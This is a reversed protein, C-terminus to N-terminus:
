EYLVFRGLATAVRKALARGEEHAVAPMTRSPTSGGEFSAETSSAPGSLEPNSSAGAAALERGTAAAISPNSLGPGKRGIVPGFRFNRLEFVPPRCAPGCHHSM